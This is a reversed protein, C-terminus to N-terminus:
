KHRYECPIVGLSPTFIVFERNRPQIRVSQTQPTAKALAVGRDATAFAFVSRNIPLEILLDTTAFM